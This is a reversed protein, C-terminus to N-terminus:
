FSLHHHDFFSHYRGESARSAHRYMFELFDLIALTPPLGPEYFHPGLDPIEARVTAVLGDRDCAYTGNGDQCRLPFDHAFSATDVGREFLVQIAEWLTADIQEDSRPRPGRERDSYYASM